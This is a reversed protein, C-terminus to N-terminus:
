AGFDPQSEECFPSARVRGVGCLQSCQTGGGWGVSVGGDTGVEAGFLRLLRGEVVAAHAARGDLLPRHVGTRGRGRRLRRLRTGAHPRVAARASRGLRLGGRALQQLVPLDPLVADLVDATPLDPWLGDRFGGGVFAVGEPPRPAAAMIAAAQRASAASSLDVRRRNMAWQSFHVHQDWLGPVLWRGAADLERIGAEAVGISAIRGGHITVDVPDGPGGVVRVSRLALSEATM